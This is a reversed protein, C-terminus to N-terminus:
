RSCGFGFIALLLLGRVEAAVLMESVKRQIEDVHQGVVLISCALGRFGFGLVWTPHELNVSSLM